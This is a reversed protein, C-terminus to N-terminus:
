AEATKFPWRSAFCVDGKLDGKMVVGAMGM